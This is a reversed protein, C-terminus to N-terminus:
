KGGVLRALAVHDIKSRHRRDLPIAAVKRIAAIGMQRAREECDGPAADGEIVLIPRGERGLLAARRVGPWSEAALEVSFPYLPGASGTTVAAHRGLLWLRGQGDIRGADGTRHWVRLGDSRKIGAEMAPDLYHANVHAGAVWIEDDDIRIETGPVPLGALLGAGGEMAAHDQPTVADWDLDAIPEAETSGYVSVVRLGARRARLGQVLQPKVPGGGTFLSHLADPIAGEALTACLGPPLLARTAGSRTIWASLQKQTVTEPRSIRWDPLASCRGDALNVLAFVPFAVLDTEPRDSALLSRVAAHQAMLFGHSRPIAKPAGTSGSTFSILACDDPTLAVPDVAGRDAAHPALRPCRWLAPLFRVLRYIGSAFVFAPRTVAVAHRLGKLGMAPEPFVAVAGLRWCAALAVYLDIGVPMAVLVRDGKCIGRAAGTAAFAAARRDIEAFSVREHPTILAIRDGERRAAESFHRALDTM